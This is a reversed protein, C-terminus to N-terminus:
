LERRLVFTKLNHRCIIICVNGFSLNDAKSVFVGDSERRVDEKM